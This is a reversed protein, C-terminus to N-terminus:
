RPASLFRKRIKNPICVLGNVMRRRYIKRGVSSKAFLRGTGDYEPKHLEREEKIRRSRERIAAARMRIESLLM